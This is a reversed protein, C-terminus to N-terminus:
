DQKWKLQTQKEGCEKCLTTIWGETHGIDKTSGCEECITDSLYEAFSIYNDTKSDGGHVYFRLGGFKEKVQEAIVQSIEVKPYYGEQDVYHQIKSCLNDLLWYWGDGCELGFCILTEKPGKNVDAFIKPYKKILKQELEPKM